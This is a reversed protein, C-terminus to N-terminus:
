RTIHAIFSDMEMRTIGGKEVSRRVDVGLKSARKRMEDGEDSGMLKRIRTEITSSTVLEGRCEWDRVSIGIKLVELVLTANRPQDSHMPWAAIPVGM